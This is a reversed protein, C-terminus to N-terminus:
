RRTTPAAAMTRRFWDVSAGATSLGGVVFWVPEDVVIVGQSYGARGLAPDRAPTALGMLQAETTGTSSLLVGPRMADAALAGVVHDHGGVAVVCDRPLGTAAAADAGVTGLRRGSAVLPAM